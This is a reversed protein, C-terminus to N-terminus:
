IYPNKQIGKTWIVRGDMKYHQGTVYFDERKTYEAVVRSVLYITGRKKPAVSNIIHDSLTYKYNFVPINEKTNSDLVNGTQEVMIQLHIKVGDLKPLLITTNQKVVNVDHWTLNIIKM